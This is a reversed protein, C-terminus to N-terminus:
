ICMYLSHSCIFVYRSMYIDVYMYMRVHVCLDVYMMHLLDALINKLAEDAHRHAHTHHVAGILLVRREIPHGQFYEIFVKPSM